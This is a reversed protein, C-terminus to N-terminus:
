RAEPASRPRGADTSPAALPAAPPVAAAPAPEAPCGTCGTADKPRVTAFVVLPQETLRGHLRMSTYLLGEKPGKPMIRVIVTRAKGDTRQGVLEISAEPGGAEVAIVEDGTDDMEIPLDVFSGTDIRGANIRYERMRFGPQPLTAENRVWVEFVPCDPRDTEVVLSAPFTPQWSDLDYRVLYANRPADGPTFGIYEPERGGIACIRFPQKDVSDIVVRGSRPRGAVANIIAPNSRISRATEARIVLELPQAFGEVAVRISARHMQPMAAGDLAAELEVSAGPAVVTGALSSTTTCKCSPTVAVIRLPVGSTNSLRFSGKAGQKPPLIGLDLVTPEAKMPPAGAQMGPAPEVRLPPEVQPAAWVVAGLVVAALFTM